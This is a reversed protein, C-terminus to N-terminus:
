LEVIRGTSASEQAALSLRLAERGERGTVLPPKDNLICDLFHSAEADIAHGLRPVEWGRQACVVLDQSLLDIEAMGRSGIVELKFDARRPHTNPLVWGAEVCAIMGDAFRILTFTHDEIHYGAAKHVKAVSESYVRVPESGFIVRWQDFYHCATDILPGGGEQKDMIWPKFRIEIGSVVRYVVPRGIAFVLSLVRSSLQGYGFLKMWYHLLYYHLPPHVFDYVIREHM